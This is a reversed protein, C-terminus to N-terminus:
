SRWRPASASCTPSCTTWRSPRPSSRCRACSATSRRRRARPSCCSRSSRQLARHGQRPRPERGRHRGPAHPRALRLAAARDRRGRQHRGHGGGARADDGPAGAARAPPLRRDANGAENADLKGGTVSEQILVRLEEPSDGEDLQGSTRVGLVGCSRTPPPTSRRQHVPQLDELLGAAAAVVWRAVIEAKQIAYIKPVQEGLTIHISTTILYALTISVTTSVWHPVDDGFLDELLSGIAPEGLFGLGLSTLTIGVQAASLYRSLDDMMAVATAAGRKGLDADTQLHAKRSRVLAFEAAVFFANLLVLVLVALLLLAIM